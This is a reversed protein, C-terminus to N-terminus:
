VPDMSALVNRAAQTVRPSPAPGAGVSGSPRAAGPPPAPRKGACRSTMVGNRSGPPAVSTEEWALGPIPPLTCLSPLLAGLSFPLGLVPPPTGCVAPLLSPRWHRRPSSPAAADVRGYVPRAPGDRLPSLPPRRDSGPSRVHQSPVPAPALLSTPLADAVSAALVGGGMCVCWSPGRWAAVEGTRGSQPVEAEGRGGTGKPSGGAAAERAPTGSGTRGSGSRAGAGGPPPARGPAPGRRLPRPWGPLRSRRSACRAPVEPWGPAWFSGPGAWGKAPFRLCTHRGELGVPPSFRSM